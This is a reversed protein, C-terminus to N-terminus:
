APVAMGFPIGNTPQGSLFASMREADLYVASGLALTSSPIVRSVTSNTFQPDSWLVFVGSSDDLNGAAVETQVMRAMTPLMTEQSKSLDQGYFKHEIQRWIRTRMKYVTADSDMWFFTNPLSDHVYQGLPSSSEDPGRNTLHVLRDSCGQCTQGHCNM